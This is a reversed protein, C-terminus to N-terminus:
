GDDQGNILTKLRDIVRQQGAVFQDLRRCMGPFARKARRRMILRSTRSRLRRPWDLLLRAHPLDLAPAGDDPTDAASRHARIRLEDTSPRGHADWGHLHVILREVLEQGVRGFPRVALEGTDGAARDLLALGSTGVLGRTMTTGPFAIVPPV